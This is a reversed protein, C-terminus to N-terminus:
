WRGSTEVFGVIKQVCNMLKLRFIMMKVMVNAMMNLLVSM